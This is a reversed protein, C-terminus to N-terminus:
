SDFELTVISSIDFFLTLAEAEDLKLMTWVRTFPPTPIPQRRRLWKRRSFLAAVIWTYPIRIIYLM